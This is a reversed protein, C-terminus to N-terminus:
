RRVQGISRKKAARRELSIVLSTLIIAGLGFAVYIGVLHHFQFLYTVVEAVFQIGFFISVVSSVRFIARQWTSLRRHRLYLMLILFIVFLPFSVYSHLLVNQFAFQEAPCSEGWSILFTAQSCEDYHPNYIRNIDFLGREGLGILTLALLLSLFVGSVTLHEKVPLSRPIAQPAQTLPQLPSM